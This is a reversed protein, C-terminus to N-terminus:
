ASSGCQEVRQAVQAASGSEAAVSLLDEKVTRAAHLFSYAAGLAVCSTSLMAYRLSDAGVWPMLRDSLMGVIQPGTGMGILNAFFMVMAM